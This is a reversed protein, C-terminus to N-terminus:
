CKQNRKTVIRLRNSPNDGEEKDETEIETEASGGLGLRKREAQDRMIERNVQDPNEGRERIIASTSTWQRDEAIAKAGMEKLPDIWPMPPASHSCNYLTDRDINNPIAIAGTLRVTNIFDDWIPQAMRRVLYGTLIRYHQYQEVLEQRQASYTGTYKKAISSFGAGIGAAASRLQDARFDILANNPRNANITGIEEGPRLDDFIMGPVMELERQEPQGDEGTGAIFDDPTGKKIFASMAAAVRAAVRESEDIDKIDEFRTIVSAFVSVGRLQHLRKAMKLHLMFRAPVTKTKMGAWVSDGPHGKFVRYSVPRGWTNVEIGQRIREAENTLIPVIDAELGELSYPLISGHDLSPIEGLLKQAFVEGDRFMSRAMLRQLSWYDLQGTVEPFNVWDNFLRILERNFDVALEDSDRIEVQPEPQIGTGVTNAVLVDLAGSAFDFNREFDRALSRLDAIAKANETNASANNRTFTHVRNKKVGDYSNFISLASRARARSLAWKPSIKSIVFKDLWPASRAEIKRAM